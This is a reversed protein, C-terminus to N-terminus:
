VGLLGWFSVISVKMLLALASVATSFGTPMMPPTKMAAVLEVELAVEDAPEEVVVDPDGVLLPVPVAVPEAAVM